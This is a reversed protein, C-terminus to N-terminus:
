RRRLVGSARLGQGNPHCNYCAQSNSSYGDEDSHTDDMQSREHAHCDICSFVSYSATRHCDGCAFGSHKGSQIPFRHTFVAQAWSTHSTYHCNQCATSYGALKHNPQSTSDYDRKHCGYCDRPLDYGAAHCLDCALTKHAGLLPWFRDHNVAASTWNQASSGHCSACDTSYGAQRHNPATTSDYDQKHCSFCERSLEYGAAHCKECAATKHAGLLPWYQDHNVVADDWTQASGSHCNQCDTAYGAQRHNPNQTRDYDALHCSVCAQPTGAYVNNKHCDACAATMHRGLLPFTTHATLAGRWTAQSFHCQRCDTSYNAAAHGAAQQYQERHCSYCDRVAQRDFLGDPHCNDCDMTRHIGALPFGGQRGHDWSNPKLQKWAFPTHCDACHMGLLTRYRDDQRREWHCAECSTPTGALVGDLHCDACPVTRHKGLLPFNTREHDAATWRKEQAGLGRGPESVLFLLGGLVAALGAALMTGQMRSVKSLVPKM